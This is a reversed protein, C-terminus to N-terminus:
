DAPPSALRVALSRLSMWWEETPRGGSRDLMKMADALPTIEIRKGILGIVNADTEDLQIQDLLRRMGHHAFRSAQIRDFPTPVGGRQLHGLISARVDFEDEGEEQMVRRIVDTNYHRSAHEGMIMIGLSKGKRFGQRLGEVDDSLQELTIGDEPLYAQEAGSALGSMLPLFGCEGGMVEIVFARHTSSATTKIKDVAEVINNLATDAGISFDTAPLSNDISAPLCLIPMGFGPHRDRLRVMEAVNHYANLGGLVMLGRVGHRQLVKELNGWDGPGFDYRGSGLLTGGQSVWGSVSMWDLEQMQGNVMGRFGNMGAVVRLGANLAQRVAVRVAANMAPADAGATVIAVCGSSEPKAAPSAQTLTKLLDLQDHFSHGRLGLATAYDGAELAKPVAQSKSVVEDLPTATAENNVLGIMSPPTEPPSDLLHDVAAVGLRTALVRDFASATGGRQVHGLVTVRAEVGMRKELINQITEAQIPLGDTHRAGEAFIVTAHRRGAERGQQLANVMKQHWRPDMEEEPILVWHGGSALASSLALYGSNRGMVEVIFTRQHSAATSGLQDVARVITQLATDAGISIDTGYIDNDISGPLGVVRMAAVGRDDPLDIRGEAVLEQLLEPWEHTLVMAGTLSGDGGIVVLGGIRHQYLNFAAQKRGERTRFAASRATGLITGGRQLIGGADSWVLPQIKAGGQVAGEWGDYIGFVELGRTIGGRVVARIAANMGQSDGGSTLVGIREIAM